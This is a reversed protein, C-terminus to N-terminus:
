IRISSKVRRMWRRRISDPVPPADRATKPKQAEEHLYGIFPQIVLKILTLFIEVM